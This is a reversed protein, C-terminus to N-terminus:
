SPEGKKRPQASAKVANESADGATDDASDATDDADAASDPQGSPLYEPHEAKEQEREEPTKCLKVVALLALSVALTCLATYGVVGNPNVKALWLVFTVSFVGM